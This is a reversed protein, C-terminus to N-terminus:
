KYSLYNVIIMYSSKMLKLQVDNKEPVTASKCTQYLGKLWTCSISDEYPGGPQRSRTTDRGNMCRLCTGKECYILKEMSSTHLINRLHSIELSMFPYATDLILSHCINVKELDELFNLVRLLAKLNTRLNRISLIKLKPAYKTLAVAHKEKFEGESFKLETVNCNGIARIMSDSAMVSPITISELGRWLSLVTDVERILFDGTQPLVVRKLNPTREAVTMFQNYTLYVHFYFIICTTNGNSLDLLHKLFLTMKSYSLFPSRKLNSYRRYVGIKNFPRNCYSHLISLDIKNWLSPDRCANNWSKCVLSAVGVDVVNLSLFIKVLIDYILDNNVKQENGVRSEMNEMQERERKILENSRSSDVLSGIHAELFTRSLNTSAKRVRKLAEITESVAIIRDHIKKRWMRRVGVQGRVSQPLLELNKTEWCWLCSETYDESINADANPLGYTVRHGELLVITKVTAYSVPEPEALVIAGSGVERNLRDYIEGVLKSLPLDSEELLVAIVANRSGGCQSLEIYVKEAMAKKYYRFFADLEKELTELSKDKLNKLKIKPIKARNSNPDQSSSSPRGAQTTM